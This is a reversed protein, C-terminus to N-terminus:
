YITINDILYWIGTVLYVFISDVMKGVVFMVHVFMIEM